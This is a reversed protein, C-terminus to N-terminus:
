RRARRIDPEPDILAMVVGWHAMLCEPDLKLAACFHRYAEFDWSGHLNAVGDLVHQQAKPDAATVAMTIGKPILPAAPEPLKAVRDSIVADVEPVPEEAKPVPEEAAFALGLSALLVTLFRM